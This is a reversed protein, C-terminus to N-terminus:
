CRRLAAHLRVVRGARGALRRPDTRDLLWGPEVGAGARVPVARGSRRLRTRGDLAAPVFENRFYGIHAIPGGFCSVGLWAFARLVELASGQPKGADTTRAATALRHPITWRRSAKHRTRITPREGM